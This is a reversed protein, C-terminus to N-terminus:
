WGQRPVNHPKHHLRTNYPCRCHFAIRSLYGTRWPNIRFRIKRPLEFNVRYNRQKRISVLEPLFGGPEGSQYLGPLPNVQLQNGKSINMACITSPEQWLLNKKVPIFNTGSHKMWTKWYNCKKSWSLIRSCKSKLYRKEEASMTGELYLSIRDYDFANM